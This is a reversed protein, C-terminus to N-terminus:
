NIPTIGQEERLVDIYQRLGRELDYEPDYGLDERAKTM